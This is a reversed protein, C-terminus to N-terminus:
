EPFIGKLLAGREDVFPLGEAFRKQVIELRDKSVWGAIVNAESFWEEIGALIVAMTYPRAVCGPGSAYHHRGTDDVFLIDDLVLQDIRRGSVRAHPYRWHYEIKAIKVNYGSCSGIYDGTRLSLLWKLNPKTAMYSYKKCIRKKGSYWRRPTNATKLIM